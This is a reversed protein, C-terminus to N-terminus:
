HSIVEIKEDNTIQLVQVNGGYFRSMGVDVAWVKGGCHPTISEQVSHAVIMRRANLIRLSEKLMRCDEDSVDESFHRSMTVIDDPNGADVGIASEPQIISGAFWQSVDGNIRDIGFKAWYPTVGGHVYITDGLRLVTQFEALQRAYYGGSILAAGRARRDVPLHTLRSDDLDLGPIGEFAPYAEPDVYDVRLQASFVEHNGILVHVRGGAVEAKRRLTFMLDLVERDQYSRGILDIWEDKDNIADALQFAARAADIDGHIDGIVMIKEPVSDTTGEVCGALVAFASLALSMRVKM